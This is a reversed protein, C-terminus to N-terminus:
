DEARMLDLLDDASMKGSVDAGELLSDALDRKHRHLDVIKEEITHKAILRYITVPRQQGMRHARDSAQDEVAPNWWPDMHIVYDAATINLGVGGAKLSILFVDGEGRQFADVRQQREKAPTAGDLYQYRIGQQEIYERILTLHDVFQSFVLAKHKSELLEEVIEGFATLKSSPLAVADNVLRTNCCGRRLKTIAALIQLHRQGPALPTDALSTLADRRVAEYFAMEEASLEVYIPIETRPPLEQLVQAKTRRLIFPQILKKLRQRATLDQDREVPGAFHRSFHEWSGLLGPNIFRFLNWLEGLHNEMPTGTMILKFDGQLAMAAQSRRTATNKIAQAEDLVITHFRTQGLLEGVQEQQLLGYSCILLDYPALSELLAQRDNLGLFRPRLTPAFRNTEQEWNACVSTPAIVLAPGQPAREVLLALAQITKGLGMDDALCAGVGWHALRSLWAYGEFQYDRLEAQFTSPLKPQHDRAAQLRALHQQWHQDSVFDGIEQEWEELSLAALPNIRVRKGQWDAYARLEELRKRFEETLAIFQGDQLPVFRGRPQDLLHLLQRIELVTNEDIKVEGDLGFWDRDRAVRLSLQGSHVQGLMRFRVGEPWEVHLQETDLHQLQLLLELCDEPNDLLWEGSSDPEYASLIPFAQLISEARAREEALNRQTQLPKGDIETVLVASGVGPRYYAGGAAFPKVLLAVKLGEGYPLLHLHPTADAPVSDTHQEGSIDSHITLLNSIHAIAQLVREKASEPAELGNKGLLQQIKQHEPLFETVRLRTPTEKIIRMTEHERPAPELVIRLMNRMEQRDVHLVVEGKVIEVRVDPNDAWFVLPHGILEPWVSEKFLYYPTSYWGEYSTEIHRCIRLDHETLYDFADSDDRLRKLAVVRGRSWGGKAQLRQERAELTFAQGTQNIWWVLRSTKTTGPELLRPKPQQLNLLADLALEWDPRSAFLGALRSPPAGEAADNKAQAAIERDHQFIQALEAALWRYGQEHLHRYLKRGVPSLEDLHEADIWHRILFLFFSALLPFCTLTRPQGFADFPQWMPPYIEIRKLSQRLDIEGQLFRAFKGLYDYIVQWVNPQKQTCNLYTTLKTRHEPLPSKLLVLPWILGAVSQFYVNRKGTLKRLASWASEYQDIAGQTDGEFFKQAALLAMIEPEEQTAACVRVRDWEGRLWLIELMSRRFLVHTGPETDQCRQWASWLATPAYLYTLAHQAMLGLCRDAIGPHEQMLWEIDIPVTTLGLLFDDFAPIRNGYYARGGNLIKSMTAYDKLHFSLRAQNLCQEVTIYHQPGVILISSRATQELAPYILASFQLLRQPEAALARMILERWPLPCFLLNRKADHELWGEDRLRKLYQLVESAKFPKKSEPVLALTQFIKGCSSPSGGHGYAAVVQLMTQEAHPLESFKGFKEIIETNTM